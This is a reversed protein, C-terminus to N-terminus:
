SVRWNRRAMRETSARVGYEPIRGNGFAFISRVMYAVEVSGDCLIILLLAGCFPHCCAQRHAVRM